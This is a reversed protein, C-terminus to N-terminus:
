GGWLLSCEKDRNTGVERMLAFWAGFGVFTWVVM